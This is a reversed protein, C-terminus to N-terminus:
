QFYKKFNKKIQILYLYFRKYNNNRIIKIRNQKDKKILKYRKM